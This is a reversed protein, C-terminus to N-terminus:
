SHSLTTYTTEYRCQTEFRHCVPESPYKDSTTVTVKHEQWCNVDSGRCYKTPIADQSCTANSISSTRLWSLTQCLGTRLICYVLIFRQPWSRRSWFDTGVVGWAVSWQGNNQMGIFLPDGSAVTLEPCESGTGGGGTPCPLSVAAGNHDWQVPRWLPAPKTHARGETISAPRVGATAQGLSGAQCAAAILRFSDRRKWNLFPM